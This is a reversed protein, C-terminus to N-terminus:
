DDAIRYSGGGVTLGYYLTASTDCSMGVVFGYLMMSLLLSWLVLGLLSLDM